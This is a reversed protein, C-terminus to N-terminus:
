EQYALGMRKMFERVKEYEVLFQKGKETLKPFTSNQVLGLDALESLYKKLRDFPVNTRLQVHTIALDGGEAETEATSLVSLIDAYIKIRDRRAFRKM